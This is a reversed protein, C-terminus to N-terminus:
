RQRLGANQVGAASRDCQIFRTLLARHLVAHSRRDPRGANGCSRRSSRRSPAFYAVTTSPIPYYHMAHRLLEEVLRDGAPVGRESARVYYSTVASRQFSGASAVPAATMMTLLGAALAGQVVKWM